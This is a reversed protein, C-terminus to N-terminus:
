TERGEFRRTAYDDAYEYFLKAIETESMAKRLTSVAAVLIGKGVHHASCGQETMLMEALRLAQTFALQEDAPLGKDDM